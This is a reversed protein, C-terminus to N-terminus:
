AAYQAPVCDSVGLAGTSNDPRECAVDDFEKLAQLRDWAHAVALARIRKAFGGDDKLWRETAARSRGARLQAYALRWACEGEIRDTLMKRLSDPRRVTM